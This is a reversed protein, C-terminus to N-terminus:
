RYRYSTSVIAWVFLGVLLAGGIAAALVPHAVVWALVDLVLEPM